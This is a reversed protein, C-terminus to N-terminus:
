TRARMLCRYPYGADESSYTKSSTPFPERNTALSMDRNCDSPAVEAVARGGM